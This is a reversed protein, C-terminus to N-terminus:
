NNKGLVRINQKYTTDFNKTYWTHIKFQQKNVIKHSVLFNEQM